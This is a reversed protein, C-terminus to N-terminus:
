VSAPRKFFAILRGQYPVVSALEWGHKGWQALAVDLASVEFKDQDSNLYDSLGTEASYEWKQIEDPDRDPHLYGGFKKNMRISAQSIAVIIAEKETEELAFIDPAAPIDFKAHSHFVRM